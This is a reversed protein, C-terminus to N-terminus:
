KKQNICLEYNQDYSESYRIFERKHTTTYQLQCPKMLFSTEQLAFRSKKENNKKLTNFDKAYSTVRPYDFDAQASTSLKINPNTIKMFSGKGTGFDESYVTKKRVQLEPKSHNMYVTTMVPFKGAIPKTFTSSYTSSNQYSIKPSSSSKKIKSETSSPRTKHAKYVSNYSTELDVAQQPLFNSISYFPSSQGSRKKPYNLM